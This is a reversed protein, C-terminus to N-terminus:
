AERRSQRTRVVSSTAVAEEETKVSKATRVKTRRSSTIRTTTTTTAEEAEVDIATDVVAAAAKRKGSAPAAKDAKEARRFAQMEQVMSPPLFSQVEALEAAFLVSHAWGAHSGFRSRFIGGVREYVAPTLSRNVDCAAFRTLCALVLVLAM